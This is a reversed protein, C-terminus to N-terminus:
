YLNFMDSSKILKDKSDKKIKNKKKKMYKEKLSDWWPASSM